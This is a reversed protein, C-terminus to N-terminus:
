RGGLRNNPLFRSILVSVVCAFVLGVALFTVTFVLGRFWRMPKSRNVPEPPPTPTAKALRRNRLWARWAELRALERRTERWGTDLLVMRAEDPTYRHLRWYWFGLVVPVGVVAALGVLLLLPEGFGAPDRSAASFRVPPFREPRVRLGAAWLWALQGLVAAGGAAAVLGGFEEDSALRSPRLVPPETAAGEGSPADAPTLRRTLGALRYHATLYAVAAAAIVMDMLRFWGSRLDWFGLQAVPVGDKFAVLYGMLGLAFPPVAPHRSVLGAAAVLTPIGAALTYGDTFLAGALVILATLGVGLYSRAAPDGILRRVTAVLDVTGVPEPRPPTM